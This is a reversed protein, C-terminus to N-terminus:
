DLIWFQLVLSQGPGKESGQLQWFLKQVSRGGFESGAMTQLESIPVQREEFESGASGPNPGTREGLESGALTGGFELGALTQLESLPIPREGFESGAM